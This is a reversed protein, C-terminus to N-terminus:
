YMRELSENKTPKEWTSSKPFINLFRKGTLKALLSTMGIGLLYLIHLLIKNTTTQIIKSLKILLVMRNSLKEEKM